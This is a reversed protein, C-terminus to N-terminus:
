RRRDGIAVVDDEDIARWRETEQGDIGQGGGIRDEDRELTLVVCELTQGLQEGGDIEDAVMEVRAEREVPDDQGHEVGPRVQGRVDGGFRAVCRPSRTYSVTMGRLTRSESAGLWPSGIEDYAGAERPASAYRRARRPTGRTPEPMGARAPGDVASGSTAAPRTACSREIRLAVLAEAAAEGRQDRLPGGALGARDLDREVADARVGILRALAEVLRAEGRELRADALM